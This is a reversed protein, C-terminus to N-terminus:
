KEEIMYCGMKEKLEYVKLAAEAMTPLSERSLFPLDSIMEELWEDLAKCAKEKKSEEIM